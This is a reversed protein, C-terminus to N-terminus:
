RAPTATHYFDVQFEVGATGPVGKFPAKVVVSVNGEPLGSASFDLPVEGRPGGPPQSFPKQYGKAKVTFQGKAV